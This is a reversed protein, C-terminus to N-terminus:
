SASRLLLKLISFTQFMEQQLSFYDFLSSINKVRDEAARSTVVQFDPAVVSYLKDEFAQKLIFIHFNM